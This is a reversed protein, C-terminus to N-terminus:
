RRGCNVLCCRLAFGLLSQAFLPLLLSMCCCCCYCDGISIFFPSDEGVSGVAVTLFILAEKPSIM